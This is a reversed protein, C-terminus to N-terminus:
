QAVQSMVVDVNEKVALFIDKVFNNHEQIMGIRPHSNEDVRVAKGELESLENLFKDVHKKIRGYIEYYYQNLYVAKTGDDGNLCAEYFVKQEQRNKEGLIQGLVSIPVPLSFRMIMLITEPKLLIVCIFLRVQYTLVDFIEPSIEGTPFFLMRSYSLGIATLETSPIIDMYKWFTSPAYTDIFGYKALNQQMMSINMNQYLISINTSTGSEFFVCLFLYRVLYLLLILIMDM